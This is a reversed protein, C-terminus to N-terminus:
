EPAMPPWHTWAPATSSGQRWYEIPPVRHSLPSAQAIADPTSFHTVAPPCYWSHASFRVHL